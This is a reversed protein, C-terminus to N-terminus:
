RHQSLPPYADQPHSKKNSSTTSSSSDQRNKVKSDQAKKPLPTQINDCEQNEMIKATPKKARGSRRPDTESVCQLMQNVEAERHHDLNALIEELHVQFLDQNAGNTLILSTAKYM